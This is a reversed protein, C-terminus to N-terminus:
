IHIQARCAGLRSLPRQGRETLLHRNLSAWVGSALAIQPILPFFFDRWGVGKFGSSTETPKVQQFAPVPGLARPSVNTSAGM